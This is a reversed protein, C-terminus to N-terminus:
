PPNERRALEAEVLKIDGTFELREEEAEPGLSSIRLSASFRSAGVDLGSASCLPGLRRSFSGSARGRWSGM